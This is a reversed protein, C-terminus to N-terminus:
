RALADFIGKGCYEEGGYTTLTFLNESVKDLDDTFPLVQRVFGVEPSLRNNRYEFLPVELRPTRGQKTARAFETVVAWLQTKAQAILGDMSNRTDLLLAVQIKPSAEHEAALVRGSMTAATLAALTSVFLFRKM